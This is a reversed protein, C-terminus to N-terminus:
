ACVDRGTPRTTPRGREYAHLLRSALSHTVIAFTFFGGIMIGNPRQVVDALTTHVFIVTIVADAFVLRRLGGESV